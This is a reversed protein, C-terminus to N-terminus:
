VNTPLNNGYKLQERLWELSKSLVQYETPDLKHLQIFRHASIMTNFYTWPEIKNSKEFNDLSPRMNTWNFAITTQEEDTMVFRSLPLVHDVTWMTGYNDWTMGDDFQFELWDKLRQLCCGVYSESSGRKNQFRTLCKYVYNRHNCLLCFAIDTQKKQRRVANYITECYKQMYAHKCTKCELRYGHASDSRQSFESLAKLENCVSCLKNGDVIEVAAKKKRVGSARDLKYQGVYNNRCEKCDGRYKKTDSRLEFKDFTKETKCTKCIKSAMYKLSIM